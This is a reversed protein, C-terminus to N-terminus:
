HNETPIKWPIPKNLYPLILVVLPVTYDYLSSTAFGTKPM